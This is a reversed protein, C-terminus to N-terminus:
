DIIVKQYYTIRASLANCNEQHIVRDQCHQTKIVRESQYTSVNGVINIMM